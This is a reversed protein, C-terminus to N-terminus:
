VLPPRYRRVIRYPYRGVMAFPRWLLPGAYSPNPNPNPNPMRHRVKAIASRFRRYSLTYKVHLLFSFQIHQLALHLTQSHVISLTYKVHLLFSFQVHQLALHLAQSHVVVSQISEHLSSVNRRRVVAVSGDPLGVTLALQM